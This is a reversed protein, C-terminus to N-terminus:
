ATASRHWARRRARGAQGVAAGGRWVSATSGASVSARHARTAGSSGGSAAVPRGGRSSRVTSVPIRHVIRVPAAHLSTGTANPVPAVSCRRQWRQRLSPVHAAM